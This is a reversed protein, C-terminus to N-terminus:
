LANERHLPLAPNAEHETLFLFQKVRQFVSLYNALATISNNIMTIGNFSVTAALSLAVFVSAGELPLGALTPAFLIPLAFVSDFYLLFGQFCGSLQHFRRLRSVEEKRAARARAILPQEWGYGKVTLIGKVLTHLLSLRGDSAQSIRLRLRLILGNVPFLLLFVLLVLLLIFFTSAAGM